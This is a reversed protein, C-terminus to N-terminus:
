FSWQSSRLALTTFERRVPRYKIPLEDEDWNSIRLKVSEGIVDSLYRKVADMIAPSSDKSRVRITVENTSKQVLEYDLLHLTSEMYEMIGKPGIWDGMKNIFGDSM